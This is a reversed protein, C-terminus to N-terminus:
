EAVARFPWKRRVVPAADVIELGIIQASVYDGGGATWSYNLVGDGGVDQYAVAIENDAYLSTENTTLNPLNTAM